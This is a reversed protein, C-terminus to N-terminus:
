QDAGADNKREAQERRDSLHRQIAPVGRPIARNLCAGLLLMYQCYYLWLEVIVVTALSGYTGFSSVSVWASFVWTLLSWTVATFVAGPLAERLPLRRGPGWRLIASFFVTLLAIVAVFRFRLAFDFLGRSAPFFREVVRVIQGGFGGVVISILIFLLMGVTYLVGTLRRLFYGRRQEQAYIEELGRILSSFGRAASWVTAVISVSLIALSSRYVDSLITSILETLSSPIAPALFAMIQAESLSTYPLLSVALIVMPVLSLFFWFATAAAIAAIAQVGMYEQVRLFNKYIRTLKKMLINYAARLDPALLFHKRM